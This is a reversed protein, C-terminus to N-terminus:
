SAAGTSITDLWWELESSIAKDPRHPMFPKKECVALMCEFGTLYARGAPVLSATHLLKGYPKQVDELLHTCRQNWEEIARIYKNCKEPSLSVSRSQVDWLFSIYVTSRKFPQDKSTEWPIGLTHSLKDIDDINYSFTATVSSEPLAM